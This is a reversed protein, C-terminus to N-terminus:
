SDNLILNLVVNESLFTIGSDVCYTLGPVYKIFDCHGLRVVLIKFNDCCFDVKENMRLNLYKYVDLNHGQWWESKEM